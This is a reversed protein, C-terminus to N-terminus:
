ADPAEAAASTPVGIDGTDLSELRRGAEAVDIEGRELSRLIGLRADDYATAIAGSVTAPAAAAAAGTAAIAPAPEPDSGITRSPPEGTPGVPTPRVIRLDGSLSRFTFHPGGNGISLSRHGRGGESRGEVDSRLDGSLTSMEIRLDGAPALLGDGSVTEVGFPGPGLLRGAVKIDGSTTAARLSRITGARLEVDGSM